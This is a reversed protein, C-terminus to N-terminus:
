LAQHSHGMQHHPLFSFLGEEEEDVVELIPATGYYVPMVGCDRRREVQIRWVSAFM